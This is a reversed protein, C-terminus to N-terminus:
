GRITVEGEKLQKLFRAVRWGDFSFAQHDNKVEGEERWWRRSLSMLGRLHDKTSDLSFEAAQEKSLRRRYEAHALDLLLNEFDGFQLRAFEGPTEMPKPFLRSYQ